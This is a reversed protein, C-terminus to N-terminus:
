ACPTPSTARRLTRAACCAGGLHARGAGCVWGCQVRAYACRYEDLPWPVRAPKDRHPVTGALLAAGASGECHVFMCFSNVAPLDIAHCHM